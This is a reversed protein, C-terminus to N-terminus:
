QSIAGISFVSAGNDHMYKQAAYNMMLDTDYVNLDWTYPNKYWESVDMKIEISTDGSITFNREFDFSLYNQEFVGESVRATGHHYAYSRLAGNADEYKGEMQMFHYGGGLMDPWNWSAANLDPYAGSVNDAENFGYIFSIGTYEGTPVRLTPNLKLSNVDTVDILQYDDFKITSGDAKHLEIGSILYRLKSITLTTGLANTYSSAGNFNSATVPDGDWNQTFEFTVAADVAVDDDNNCGIIAFALAFLFAIKKM